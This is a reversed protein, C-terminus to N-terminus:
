MPTLGLEDLLIRSQENDHSIRVKVVHGGRGREGPFVRGEVLGAEVLTKLPRAFTHGSKTDGYVQSRPVKLSGVIDMLSRWGTHDVPLRRKVYDEVFCKALYGLIPSVIISAPASEHTWSKGEEDEYVIRPKLTSLGQTRPRLVLKLEEIRLPELRKNRLRLGEDEPQCFGPWHVLECWDPVVKELKTLLADRWGINLLVVSLVIDEGVNLSRQSVAVKVQVVPHQFRELGVATEPNLDPATLVEIPETGTLATMKGLLELATAQKQSVLHQQGTNEVLKAQELLIRAECYQRRLELAKTLRLVVGESTNVEPSGVERSLTEGIQLLLQAAKEFATIAERNKQESSLDEGNEIQAWASYNQSMSKWAKTSDHLMAANEYSRKAAGFKRRSHFYRAKEIESWAQMYTRYDQYLDGLIPVSEVAVSYQHSAMLFSESSKLRNELTELVLGSKWYCDAARSPLEAKEFQQAAESFVTKARQLDERDKTITHLQTLWDGESRKREAIWVLQEPSGWPGSESLEVARFCLSLGNERDVIAEQLLRRKSEKEVELIALGYKIEALYSLNLGRDWYVLPGSQESVKIAELRHIAAKELLNKRRKPDDELEAMYALVKSFGHHALYTHETYPWEIITRFMEDAAAIGQALLDRKKHRETEWLALMWYGEPDLTKSELIMARPSRFGLPAFAERAERAHGVAREFLALRECPDETVLTKHGEDNAIEDLASGILIRDGTSRAIEAAEFLIQLAEELPWVNQLITNGFHATQLLTAKRSLAHAKKWYDGATRYYEDAEVEGAFYYGLACLCRATKVLAEALEDEDKAVSLFTIAKKGHELMEQLIKKATEFNWELVYCLGSIESLLNYTKGFHSGEGAAEFARLTEGTLKWAGDLLRRREVAASALWSELYSIMARCRLARPKAVPERLSSYQELAQAYSEEAKGIRERFEDITNAQRALGFFARGIQELIEGKEPGPKEHPKRLAQEYHQVANKWDYNIECERAQVLVSDRGPVELM